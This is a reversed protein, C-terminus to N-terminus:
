VSAELFSISTTYASGPDSERSADIKAASIITILCARIVALSFNWQLANIGDPDSLASSAMLSLIDLLSM